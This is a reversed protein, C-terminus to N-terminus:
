SHVAKGCDGCRTRVPRKGHPAAFKRHGCELHLLALERGAVVRVVARMPDNPYRPASM